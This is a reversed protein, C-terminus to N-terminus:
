KSVLKELKLILLKLTRILLKQYTSVGNTSITVNSSSYNYLTIALPLNIMVAADDVSISGGFGPVSVGGVLQVPPAGSCVGGSCSTYNSSCVHGASGCNNFDILLNVCTGSPVRTYGYACTVTALIM